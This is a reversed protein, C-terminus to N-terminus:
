LHKEARYSSRVLPGSEVIEFGKALGIEKYRNFDDPHIYARVPLHRRTPQLYQGLTLVRCGVAVLDDMAELIEDETEGLGLMLGSKTRMGGKALRNLVELSRDYRAASRVEPTLRKVTELNHSVVDPREDIICQILEPKGQFDPILVEMTIGPNDQRLSRIVKVWHGVGLDPLDDRDVSTLVIHKVSMQKVSAALRAPEQEDVPQPKGTKTNCFRCSRTCVDGLIMFTATGRGWCEAQNPCRGSTCITHLEHGIIRRTEAFRDTDGLRIKLWDPKRVHEDM